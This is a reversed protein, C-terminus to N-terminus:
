VLSIQYSLNSQAYKLLAANQLSLDFDLVCNGSCMSFESWDVISEFFFLLGIVFLYKVFLVVKHEFNQM